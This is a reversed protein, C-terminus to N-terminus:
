KLVERRKKLVYGVFLFSEMMAKVQGLVRCTLAM